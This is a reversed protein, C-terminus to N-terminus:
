ARDTDPVPTRVPWGSNSQSQQSRGRPRLWLVVRDAPLAAVDGPLLVNTLRSCFPPLGDDLAPDARVLRLQLKSRKLRGRTAARAWASEPLRQCCGFGAGASIARKVAAAISLQLLQKAARGAGVARPPHHTDAGSRRMATTSSSRGERGRRAIPQGQTGSAARGRAGSVCVVSAALLTFGRRTPTIGRVWPTSGRV